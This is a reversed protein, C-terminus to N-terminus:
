LVPFHVMRRGFGVETRLALPLPRGCIVLPLLSLFFLPARPSHYVHWELTPDNNCCEPSHSRRYCRDGFASIDLPQGSITPSCYRSTFFILVLVILFRISFVNLSM